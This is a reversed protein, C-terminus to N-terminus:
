SVTLTAGDWTILGYNEPIPHIIIDAPVLLGATLLIQEEGSPTAELPGLYQEGKEIETFQGYEAEELIEIVPDAEETLMLDLEGDLVVTDTM